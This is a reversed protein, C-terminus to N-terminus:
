HQSTKLSLDSFYHFGSIDDAGNFGAALSHAAALALHGVIDEGIAAFHNMHANNIQRLFGVNALWSHHAKTPRDTAVTKLIEFHGQSLM